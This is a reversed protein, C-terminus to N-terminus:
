LNDYWERFDEWPFDRERMGMYDLFETFDRTDQLKHGYRLDDLMSYFIPFVEAFEGRELFETGPVHFWLREADENDFPRM